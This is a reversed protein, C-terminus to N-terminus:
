PCHGVGGFHDGNPFPEFFEEVTFPMAPVETGITFVFIMPKVFDVPKVVVTFPTAPECVIAVPVTVSTIPYSPM